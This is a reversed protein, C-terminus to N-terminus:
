RSLSAIKIVSKIQLLLLFKGLIKSEKKCLEWGWWGAGRRTFVSEKISNRTRYRSVKFYPSGGNQYPYYKYNRGYPLQYTEGVKLTVTWSTEKTSFENNTPVKIPAASAVAGFSLLLVVSTALLIKEAHLFM